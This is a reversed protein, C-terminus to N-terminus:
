DTESPNVNDKYNHDAFWETHEELYAMFTELHSTLVKLKSSPMNGTYLLDPLRVFLRALHTAGYILSPLIPSDENTSSPVLRWTMVQSLIANNQPSIMDPMKPPSSNSPGTQSVAPAALPSAISSQSSNSALSSIPCQAAPANVADSTSPGPSTVEPASRHSSRLSRKRSQDVTPSQEENSTPSRGPPSPLSVKVTNKEQETAPAEESIPEAKVVPVDEGESEPEKKPTPSRFPSESKTIEAFQAKEHSYLLLDALTFDFYVRLGDAVEKCITLNRCISDLDQSKNSHLYKYSYRQSQGNKSAGTASAAASHSNCLQNVACHKVFGELITVVNPEAPLQLVKNLDNILSCDHELLRRLGTPVEMPIREEVMEEDHHEQGEAESSEDSSNEDWANNDREEDHDGDHDDEDHSVSDQDSDVCASTASGNSNSTASASTSVRRRGKQRELSDNVRDSLKRQRKTRDKRYLYAGRRYNSCLQLQAKQALDKQLQRNEETDKLVFDETVCRDWSSNWGQFHILFEISKRGRQDKTVKVELVKSDYLVKAKTPDPEYCLVREGESFKFKPGRTSVM